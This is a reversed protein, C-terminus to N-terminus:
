VTSDLTANVRPSPPSCAAGHVAAVIDQMERSAGVVVGSQTMGRALGYARADSCLGASVEQTFTDTSAVGQLARELDTTLGEVFAGSVGGARLAGLAARLTQAAEGHKGASALEQAARMAAATTVRFRQVVAFEGLARPTDPGLCPQEHWSVIRKGQAVTHQLKTAYLWIAAPPPIAHAPVSVDFAAFYTGGRALAGLHFVLKTGDDSRAATSEAVGSDLLELKAGLEVAGITLAINLTCNYVCPARIVGMTAAFVSLVEADSPIYGFAGSGIDALARMLNVDADEGFGLTHVCVYHRAFTHEAIRMRVFDCLDATNRMGKNMQGDTLVLIHANQTVSRLTSFALEIGDSLATTGDAFLKLVVAEAAAKADPTMRQMSFVTRATTAFTIVCVCDGGDLVALCATITKVVAPLKSRMSLSTDVVFTLSVPSRTSTSPLENVRIEVGSPLLTSTADPLALVPTCVVRGDNDLRPRKPARPQEPIPDSVVPPEHSAVSVVGSADQVACRMGVSELLANFEKLADTAMFGPATIFTVGFAGFRLGEFFSQVLRRAQHSPVAAVLALSQLTSVLADCPAVELTTKLENPDEQADIVWAAEAVATRCSTAFTLRQQATGVHCRAAGALTAKYDELARLVSAEPSTPAYVVVNVVSCAIAAAIRHGLTPCQHLAADSCLVTVRFACDAGRTSPPPQHPACSMDASNHPGPVRHIVHRSETM